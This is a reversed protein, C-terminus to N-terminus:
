WWLIPGAALFLTVPVPMRRALLIALGTLIVFNLAAFGTAPHAGVSVALRVFPAALLSYFWFHPLEQRGDPARLRPNQLRGSADGPFMARVDTMDDPGLSPPSGRALNLSMAVYETSDGVHRASSAALLSALLGVFAAVLVVRARRDPRLLMAGILVLEFVVAAGHAM